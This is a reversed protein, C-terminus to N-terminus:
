QDESQGLMVYFEEFTDALILASEPGAIPDVSIVRYKADLAIYEGGGNGGFFVFDDWVERYHEDERIEAVENLGWLIFTWPQM